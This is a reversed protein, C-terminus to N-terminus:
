LFDELDVGVGDLLDLSKIFALTLDIPVGLVGLTKSPVLLEASTDNVSLKSLKGDLLALVGLLAEFPRGLALSKM